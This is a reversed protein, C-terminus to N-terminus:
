RATDLLQKTGRPAAGFSPGVETAGGLASVQAGARAAAGPQGNAEFLLALRGWDNSSEPDVALAAQRARIAAPLDGKLIYSESVLAWLERDRGARELGRLAVSHAERGRGQLILHRTLLQWAATQRPYARVAEVLLTEAREWQERGGYFDAVEVLLPYNFPALELAGEYVDAAAELNGTRVLGNARARLALHSNPHDRALTEVVTFTNLWSPNRLVTRVLFATGVVMIAVLGLVRTGKGREAVAATAGAVALSLGVSPLYLTREALLTGTSILLNSVPLITVMFWLIGLAIFPRTRILVVVGVLLAVLTLLGGFVEADFTVAPYLVGPAYDVALELPFFMLRAYQSWMTIATLLREGTTLGALVAAPIEGAVSGLVLFRVGMYAALVAATLALLPLEDLLRRLLPTGDARFLTLLILVGPLTAGMEKSGLALAYLLAVGMLRAVRLGGGRWRAGRWFLLCAALYFVATYLEARGVVNAVAEAHVPHVAFISAGALAGGTSFFELLLMFVLLSAVGHLVINVAHFGVTDGGFLEWEAAYSAVTVPRYLGTGEVAMPWYPTALAGGIDSETVVPNDEIILVDDFAFGNGLSNGYAALALLVVLAGARVPPPVEGLTMSAVTGSDVAEPARTCM